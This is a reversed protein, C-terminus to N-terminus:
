SIYFDYFTQPEPSKWLHQIKPARLHLKQAIEKIEPQGPLDNISAAKKFLIREVRGCSTYFLTRQGCGGVGQV